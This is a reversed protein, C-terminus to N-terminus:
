DSRRSFVWYSRCWATQAIAYPIAINGTKPLTKIPNQVTSDQSFWVHSEDITSTEGSLCKISSTYPLVSYIDVSLLSFHMLSDWLEAWSVWAWPVPAIPSFPEWKPQLWESPKQIWAGVQALMDICILATIQLGMAHARCVQILSAPEWVWQQPIQPIKQKSLQPKQPPKKQKCHLCVRWKQGPLGLYLTLCSGPSCPLHDEAKQNRKRPSTELVLNMVKGM